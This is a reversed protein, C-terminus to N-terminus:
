MVIQRIRPWDEDAIGRLVDLEAKQVDVKLLDIREVGEERIVASLPRLRCEMAVPRFREDLLEEAHEMLADMGEVGEDRQRDMMVRLVEREEEADAHFSSMGPTNPYFTFPATREAEAIGFPFARAAAGNLALNARLRRYLPPAPEFTYIRAGPAHRHAFLTFTGINGGVDFVCDGPELTIGHRLYIRREFLDEYFHEAEVRSQPVVVMGNPLRLLAEAPFAAAEAPLAPTSVSGPEGM